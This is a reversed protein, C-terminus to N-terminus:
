KGAGGQDALGEEQGRTTDATDHQRDKQHPPSKTTLRTKSGRGWGGPTLVRRVRVQAPVRMLYTRLVKRPRQM